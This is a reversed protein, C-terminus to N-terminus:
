LDPDVQVNVRVNWARDLAGRRSGGARLDTPTGEDAAALERLPNL